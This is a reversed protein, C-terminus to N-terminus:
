SASRSKTFVAKGVPVRKFVASFCLRRLALPSCSPPTLCREDEAARREGEFGRPPPEGAAVAPPDEERSVGRRRPQKAGEEHEDDTSSAAAPRAQENADDAIAELPPLLQM